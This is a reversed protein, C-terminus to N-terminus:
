RCYCNAGIFKNLRGMGHSFHPTGVAMRDKECLVRYSTQSLRLQSLLSLRENVSNNFTYRFFSLIKLRVTMTSEILNRLLINVCLSDEGM